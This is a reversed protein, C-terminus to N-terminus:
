FPGAIQWNVGDWELVVGACNQVGFESWHSLPRRAITCTVSAIVLQHSVVAVVDGHVHKAVITSLARLGRDRCAGLTEGGPPSQHTPDRKWRRFFDPYRSIAEPLFLGELEGQALERLDAIETVNDALCSATQAARALPSSYVAMFSDSSAAGLERAQTWGVDDLGIDTTGLFRRDHNWATRGHRILTVALKM